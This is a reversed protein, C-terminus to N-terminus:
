VRVAGGNAVLREWRRSRQERRWRDRATDECEIFATAEPSTIVVYFMYGTAVIRWYGAADIM